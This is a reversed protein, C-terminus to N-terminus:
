GTTPFGVTAGGGCGGGGSVEICSRSRATARRVGSSSWVISSRLLFISPRGVLASALASASLSWHPRRDLVQGGCATGVGVSRRGPAVSGGGSARAPRSGSGPVPRAVAGDQAAQDGFRRGTRTSGGPAHRPLARGGSTGVVDIRPGLGQGAPRRARRPPCPWAATGGARRARGGSVDTYKL